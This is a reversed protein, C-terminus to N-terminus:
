SKLHEIPEKCVNDVVQVLELTIKKSNESFSKVMLTQINSESGELRYRVVQLGNLSLICFWENVEYWIHVVDYSHSGIRFCLVLDNKLISEDLEIFDSFDLWFEELRFELVNEAVGHVDNALTVKGVWLNSM